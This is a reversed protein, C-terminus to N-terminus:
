LPDTRLSPRANLGDFTQQEEPEGLQSRRGDCWWGRQTGVQASRQDHRDHLAQQGDAQPHQTDPPSGSPQGSGTAAILLVCERM